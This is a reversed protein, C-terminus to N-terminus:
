AGTANGGSGSAVATATALRDQAAAVAAETDETALSLNIAAAARFGAAAAGIVTEHPNTVNGAVWVGPVSTAGTPDAPVHTGLVHDGFRFDAVPLGLQSLLEARAEFPPGVVIQQCPVFSGDRLRLGRVQDHELEVAAAPGRVVEIGLAALQEAEDPDPAGPVDHLVLTLHATLQQWLLAQHMWTSGIALIAITHDRVEWGHCYPCHLVDIGWRDSLGEVDPLRDVLGTTVLLRRAEVPPGDRRDVRFGGGDLREVGTVRDTTVEGGYGTVEQRGIALLEQPPTGERGLYNHVHGAPANRPTGDDIVLVSRRSRALALAAGLGASGGGIVVVDYPSGREGTPRGATPETGNTDM